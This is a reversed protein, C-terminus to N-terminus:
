LQRRQFEDLLGRKELLELMTAYWTYNFAKKKRLAPLKASMIDNITQLGMRKARNVFDTDVNLATLSIDSSTM